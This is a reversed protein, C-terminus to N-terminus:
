DLGLFKNSFGPDILLADRGRELVMRGKEM